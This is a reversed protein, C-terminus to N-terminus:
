QPTLTTSLVFFVRHLVVQWQYLSEFVVNWSTRLNIGVSECHIVGSNNHSGDFTYAKWYTGLPNAPYEETLKLIYPVKQLVRRQWMYPCNTTLLWQKCVLRFNRLSSVYFMFVHALAEEPLSAFSM